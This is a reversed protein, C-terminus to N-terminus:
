AGDGDGAIATGDGTAPNFQESEVNAWSGAAIMTFTNDTVFSYTITLNGGGAEGGGYAVSSLKNRSGLDMTLKDGAGTGCVVFKIPKNKPRLELSAATDICGYTMENINLYDGDTAITEIETSIEVPFTVTRLYPDYKGLTYIPERGFDFSVNVSQLPPAGSGDVMRMAGSGTPFICGSTSTDFKWRRVITKAIEGDGSNNSSYLNVSSGTDWTKDNGVLTVDETANGDTPFTYTFSNAYMGSCTMVAQPVGSALNNTEPFIFFKMDVKNNQGQVISLNNIDWAGALCAFFLPKTGDLVKNVTVEIEPNGEINEYLALQGLQFVKELNFNTTMGVSQVGRPTRYNNAVRTTTAGEVKVPSLQFGECAYFIRKNSAM